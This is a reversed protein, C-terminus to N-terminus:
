QVNEFTQAVNAEVAQVEHEVVPVPLHRFLHFSDHVAIWLNILFVRLSEPGHKHDVHDDTDDSAKWKILEQGHGLVVRFTPQYSDPVHIPFFEKVEDNVDGDVGALHKRGGDHCTGELLDSGGEFIVCLQFRLFRHEDEV